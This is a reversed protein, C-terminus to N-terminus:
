DNQADDSEDDAVFSVNYRFLSINKESADAFYPLIRVMFVVGILPGMARRM